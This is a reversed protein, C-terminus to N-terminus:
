NLDRICLFAMKKEKHLIREAKKRRQIQSETADVVIYRTDSSGNHLVKKGHLSFKDSNILAELM